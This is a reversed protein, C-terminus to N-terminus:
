KATIVFHGWRNQWWCSEAQEFCLPADKGKTVALLRNAPVGLNVLYEKV